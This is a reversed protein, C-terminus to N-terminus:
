DGRMDEANVRGNMQRDFARWRRRITSGDRNLFNAVTSPSLDPREGYIMRYAERRAARLRKSQRPGRLDPVPVKFRRAVENVIDAIPRGRKEVVDIIEFFPKRFEQALM